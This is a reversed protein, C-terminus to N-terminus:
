NRKAKRAEMQSSSRECQFFGIAELSQNTRIVRNTKATGGITLPMFRKNIDRVEQTVVITTDFGTKITTRQKM